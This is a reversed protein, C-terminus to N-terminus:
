NKGYKMTMKKMSSKERTALLLPFCKSDLSAFRVAFCLTLTLTLTLPSQGWGLGVWGLGVWGLGVWGLGVWGL